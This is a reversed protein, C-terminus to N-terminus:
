EQEIMSDPPPHYRMIDGSKTTLSPLSDLFAEDKDALANPLTDGIVEIRGAFHRVMRTLFVASIMMDPKTVWLRGDIEGEVTVPTAGSALANGGDAHMETEETLWRVHEPSGEPADPPPASCRLASDAGLITIRSAGMVLAIDCARTVANLGSGARVTEPYLSYYMWDEFPMVVGDELEVPAENIGVYNHFFTVRRGHMELLEVLHPHVSSAILYEMDPASAWEQVQQPTQDVTFAHTVCHGNDHLWIAASNCGWIQDADDYQGAHDRLSPGAGCIVIHQGKASGQNVVRDCKTANAAIFGKFHHAVPNQLQIEPPGQDPVGKGKRKTRRGFKGVPTGGNLTQTRHVTGCM